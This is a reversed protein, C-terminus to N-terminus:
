STGKQSPTLRSLSWVAVRQLAVLVVMVGLALAFITLDSEGGSRFAFGLSTSIAPPHVVDLVVMLLITAAMALAAAAYGLGLLRSTGLGLLAGLLHSIVLTRTQNTGHNPDLYILFASSALSGFLLRQQALLKVLGLVALVTVTPLLALALESRLGLRKRVTRDAGRIPELSQKDM